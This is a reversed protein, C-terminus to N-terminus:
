LVNHIFIETTKGWNFTSRYEHTRKHTWCIIAHLSLLPSPDERGNNAIIATYFSELYLKIWLNDVFKPIKLPWILLKIISATRTPFFVKNSTRFESCSVRFKSYNLDVVNFNYYYKSRYMLLPWLRRVNYIKRMMFYIYVMSRFIFSTCMVAMKFKNLGPFTEGIRCGSSWSYSM